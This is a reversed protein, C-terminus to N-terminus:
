AFAEFGFHCLHNLGAVAQERFEGGAVMCVYMGFLDLGWM